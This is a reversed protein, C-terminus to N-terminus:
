SRPAGTPRNKIQDIFATTEPPLSRLGAQGAVSLFPRLSSSALFAPERGAPIIRDFILVLTVAILLTRIGGLASGALRDALGIEDGVMDSIATRFATAMAFGIGLFAICFILAARPTTIASAESQVVLSTVKVAIPAACLYGVITAVSRLLGTKYGFIIAIAAALAVVADFASVGLPM